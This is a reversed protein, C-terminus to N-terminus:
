RVPRKAEERQADHADVVGEPPQQAHLFWLVADMRRADLGHDIQDTGEGHVRLIRRPRSIRHALDHDVGVGGM